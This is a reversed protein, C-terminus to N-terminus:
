SSLERGIAPQRGWDGLTLFDPHAIEFQLLCRGQHLEAPPLVCAEEAMPRLLRMRLGFEIAKRERRYGSRKVRARTAVAMAAVIRGAVPAAVGMRFITMM